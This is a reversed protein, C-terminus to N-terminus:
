ARGNATLKAAPKPEYPPKTDYGGPPPGYHGVDNYRLNTNYPIPPSPVPPPVTPPGPPAGYHGGGYYNDNQNNYRPPPLFNRGRGRGPKASHRYHPKRSQEQFCDLDSITFDKPLVKNYQKQENSRLWTAIKRLLHIDRSKVNYNRQRRLFDDWCDDTVWILYQVTTLGEAIMFKFFKENFNPVKNLYSQLEESISTEKKRKEIASQVDTLKMSLLKQMDKCYDLQVELDNNSNINDLLLTKYDERSMHETVNDLIHKVFESKSENTEVKNFISQIRYAITKPQKKKKTVSYNRERKNVKQMQQLMQAAMMQGGVHSPSSFPRGAHSSKSQRYFGTELGDGTKSNVLSRQSTEEHHFEAHGAGTYPTNSPMNSLAMSPMTAVAMAEPQTYAQNAAMRAMAANMQETQNLRFRKQQRLLTNNNDDSDESSLLSDDQLWPKSKDRRSNYM